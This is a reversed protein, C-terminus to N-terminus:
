YNRRSRQTQTLWEDRIATRLIVWARVRKKGSIVVISENIFETWNTSLPYDKHIKGIDAISNLKTEIADSIDTWDSM